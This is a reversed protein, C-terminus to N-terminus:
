GSILTDALVSTELSVMGTQNRECARQNNVFHHKRAVRPCLGESGTQWERGCPGKVAQCSAEELGVTELENGREGRMRKKLVSSSALGLM